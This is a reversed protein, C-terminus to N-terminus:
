NAVAFLMPAKARAVRTRAHSWLVKAASDAMCSHSEFWNVAADFDVTQRFIENEGLQLLVFASVLADGATRRIPIKPWLGVPQQLGALYNMGAEIATGQGNCLSLARLCLATIAVNGWGGDREQQGIIARILKPCIPTYSQNLEDLRILAMAAAAAGLPETFERSAPAEVRPAILEDLLRVYQRSDWLKQIHRVTIM